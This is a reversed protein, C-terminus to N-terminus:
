ELHPPVRGWKCSIPIEAIIFGNKSQEFIMETEIQFGDSVLNLKNWNEKRM